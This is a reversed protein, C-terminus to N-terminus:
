HRSPLGQARDLLELLTTMVEEEGSVMADDGDPPAVRGLLALLAPPSSVLVARVDGGAPPAGVVQLRRGPEAIVTIPEHEPVDIAVTFEDSVWSPRVAAALCRLLLSPDPVIGAAALDSLDAPERRSRLLRRLRRRSGSVRAGGLRRHAGGAGLPALLAAPGGVTFAPREGAGDPRPDVSGRGEQLRVRYAGAGEIEVDYLLDGDFTRAADPLLSALFAGAAPIDEAAFHEIANALWPVGPRQDPGVAEPDLVRHDTPAVRRLRSRARRGPSMAALNMTNRLPDFRFVAADPDPQTPASRARLEALAVDFPDQGPPREHPARAALQEEAHRRLEQATAGLDALGGPPEPTGGALRARLEEVEERLRDREETVEALHAELARLRETLGELGNEAKRARHEALVARDIVEAPVAPAEAAVDRVPAPPVSPVAPPLQVEVGAVSLVLGDGAVGGLAAPLDFEAQLATPDAIAIARPRAPIVHRQGGDEVLLVPPEAPVPVRWTGHVTIRVAGGAGLGRIVSAVAVPQTEPPAEPEV